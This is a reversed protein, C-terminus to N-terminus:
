GTSLEVLVLKVEGKDNKISFTKLKKTRILYHVRHRTIRHKNAYDEILDFEKNPIKM